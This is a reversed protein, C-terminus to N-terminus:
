PTLVITQAITLPEEVFGGSESTNVEITSETNADTMKDFSDAGIREWVMLTGMLAPYFIQDRGEPQFDVIPALIGPTLEGLEWEHVGAVRGASTGAPYTRDADTYSWTPHSGRFEARRLIADVAATLGSRAPGEDPSRIECYIWVINITRQRLNYALTKRVTKAPGGQWLYLAPKPNQPWVNENSYPFVNAAPCADSYDEDAKSTQGGLDALKDSLAYRLWHAFYSGFILCTRDEIPSGVAGIPVSVPNKGVFSEINPM